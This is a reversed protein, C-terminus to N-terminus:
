RADRSQKTSFAEWTRHPLKEDDLGGLYALWLKRYRCSRGSGAGNGLCISGSTIRHIPTFVITSGHGGLLYIEPAGKFV